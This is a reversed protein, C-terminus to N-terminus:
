RTAYLGAGMVFFVVLVLGRSKNRVYQVNRSPSWIWGERCVYSVHGSGPHHVVRVHKRITRTTHSGSILGSLVRTM